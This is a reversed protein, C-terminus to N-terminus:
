ISVFVSTHSVLACVFVVSVSTRRDDRAPDSYAHFQECEQKVDDLVVGTDDFAVRQVARELSEGRRVATSPLAVNRVRRRGSHLEGRHQVM